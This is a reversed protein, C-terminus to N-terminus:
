FLGQFNQAFHNIAIDLHDWNLYVFAAISVFLPIIIWQLVWFIALLITPTVPLFMWFWETRGSGHMRAHLPRYVFHMFTEIKQSFFFKAAFIEFTDGSLRDEIEKTRRGVNDSIGIKYRFLHRSNGLVYIYRYDFPRNLNM